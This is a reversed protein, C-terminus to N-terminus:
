VTPSDCLLSAAKECWEIGQKLSAANNKVTLGGPFSQVVVFGDGIFAPSVTFMPSDIGDMNAIAGDEDIHWKLM